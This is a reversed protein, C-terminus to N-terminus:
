LSDELNPVVPLASYEPMVKLQPCKTITHTKLYKRVLQSDSM